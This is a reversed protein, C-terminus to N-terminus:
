RSTHADLILLCLMVKMLYDGFRARDITLWHYFDLARIFFTDRTQWGKKSSVAWAHSCARM